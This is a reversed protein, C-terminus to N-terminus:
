SLRMLLRKFSEYFQTKITSLAVIVLLQERRQHIFDLMTYFLLRRAIVCLWLTKWGKKNRCIEKTISTINLPMGLYNKPWLPQSGESIRFLMNSNSQKRIVIKGSMSLKSQEFFSKEFCSKNQVAIHCLLLM